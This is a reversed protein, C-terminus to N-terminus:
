RLISFPPMLLGSAKGRGELEPPQPNGNGGHLRRQVSAHLAWEKDLRARVSAAREVWGVSEYLAGLRERYVPNVPDLRSAVFEAGLPVLRWGANHTAVAVTDLNQASQPRDFTVAGWLGLVFGILALRGAREGPPRASALLPLRASDLAGLLWALSAGLAIFTAAVFITEDTVYGTTGLSGTAGANGSSWVLTWSRWAVLISTALWGANWMAWAARLPKGRLAFAMGPLVFGIMALVWSQSLPGPLPRKTVRVRKALEHISASWVGFGLATLASLLGSLVLLSRGPNASLLSDRSSYFLLLAWAVLALGGTVGKLRRSGEPDVIGSWPGLLYLTFLPFKRSGSGSTAHSFRLGFGEATEYGPHQQAFRHAEAERLHDAAHGKPRDLNIVWVKKDPM